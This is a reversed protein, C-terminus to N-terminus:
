KTKGLSRLKIVNLTKLSGATYVFFFFIPSLKTTLLKNKEEIGNDAGLWCHDGGVDEEDVVIRRGVL